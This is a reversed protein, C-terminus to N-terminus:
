KRFRVTNKAELDDYGKKGLIGETRFGESMNAELYKVNGEMKEGLNDVTETVDLM